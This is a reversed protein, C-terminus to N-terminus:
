VRKKTLSTAPFFLYVIIRTVTIYLWSMIMGVLFVTITLTTRYSPWFIYSPLKPFIVEMAATPCLMFEVNVSLIVDVV